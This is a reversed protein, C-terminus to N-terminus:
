QCGGKVTIATVGKVAPVGGQDIPVSVEFDRRTANGRSDRLRLTISYVRGDNAEAREARLRVSRCDPTIVIDNTTNGDLHGPADDPEDSTVKEIVVDGVGLPSCNDIVSEVMQAVTVTRYTHNPPWLEISPRLRLAPAVDEPTVTVDLAAEAFLGEGDTVRLTFGANSAGCAAVVDARAEGAADVTINSVTVGNVTASPSSNVTVVLTDAAQDPDSVAAITSNTATAGEARTVGAASITPPSNGAVYIYAAGRGIDGIPAGVIVTDEYIAASIGYFDPDVNDSATLIKVEGWNDAGGQNREFVYASGATIDFFPNGFAGVIITDEYIAVAGGFGDGQAGDSAILKKIEGWNDAGGQNREFVYAAGQSLNNGVAHSFAGVIVTDEYIAVAGFADGEAGDSATLKKVEGWNDVGGRNREFIYAAGQSLNSGVTQFPAGVILTDMYIRVVVGFQPQIGGDSAIIKKVQGWNNPGGQNREFIYVSGQPINAGIDDGPAGVIATDEYIAVRGFQAFEQGDLAILKKVEGWNDAGGQNREFIYVSGQLRNGGITDFSAGVLVTDEYIAVSIGFWDDRTADSATLKKVQGWQDTGNLNRQFIYAAGQEFNDGISEFPAGVIATDEYIAVSQGFFSSEAPDSATLKKIERFTPDIPAPYSAGPAEGGRLSLGDPTSGARWRQGPNDAYFAEGRSPSSTYVGYRAAKAAERLSNYLGQQKLYKTAADGRLSPMAAVSVHVIRAKGSSVFILAAAILLGLPGILRMQLPLQYYLSNLHFFNLITRM